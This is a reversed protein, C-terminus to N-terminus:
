ALFTFFTQSTFPPFVPLTSFHWVEDSIEGLSKTGDDGATEMAIMNVSKHLLEEESIKDATFVIAPM